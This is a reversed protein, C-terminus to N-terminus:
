ATELIEIAEIETNECVLDMNTKVELKRRLSEKEKEINDWFLEASLSDKEKLRIAKNRQQETYTDDEAIKELQKVFRKKWTAKEDRLTIDLRSKIIPKFTKLFHIYSWEEVPTEDFFDRIAKHIRQIRQLETM